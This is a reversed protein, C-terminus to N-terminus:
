LIRIKIKNFKNCKGTDKNVNKLTKTQSLVVFRNQLTCDLLNLLSITPSPLQTQM